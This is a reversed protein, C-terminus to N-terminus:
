VRSICPECAPQWTCTVALGVPPRVVIRIRYPAAQGFAQRADDCSRHKLAGTSSRSTHQRWVPPSDPGSLAQPLRDICDACGRSIPASTSTTPM